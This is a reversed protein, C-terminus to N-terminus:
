KQLNLVSIASLSVNFFGLNGKYPIFDISITSSLKFGQPGYFWPSNDYNVCQILYSIGVIGGQHYADQDPVAAKFLKGEQEKLWAWGKNDFKKGAHIFFSGRYNTHWSRNEIDKGAWIIAWAWPQQISLAKM